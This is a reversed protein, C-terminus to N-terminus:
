LEFGSVNYGGTISYVYLADMLGDGGEFRSYGASFGSVKVVDNGDGAYFHAQNSASSNTLTIKDDGDGTDVVISRFTRDHGSVGTNTIGVTDKGVGTFIFLGNNLDSNRVDVWNDGGIAQLEVWTYGGVTVDDLVFKKRGLNELPQTGNPNAPANESRVLLYGDIDVNKLDVAHNGTQPNTATNGTYTADFSHLYANGGVNSNKMSFLDRGTGGYAHVSGSASVNYMFVRDDHAGMNIHVNHPTTVPGGDLGFILLDNGSGMDIWVSGTVGAHVTTGGTGYLNEVTYTNPSSEYVKVFDNGGSGQVILDGGSVFASASMLARSELAECSLKTRRM